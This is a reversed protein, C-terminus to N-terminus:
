NKNAYPRLTPRPNVGRATLIEKMEEPPVRRIDRVIPSGQEDTVVVGTNGFTDCVGTGDPLPRKKNIVIRGNKLSSFYAATGDTIPLESALILCTQARQIAQSREFATETQQNRISAQRQATASLDPSRLIYGVSLAAVQAGILYTTAKRNILQM